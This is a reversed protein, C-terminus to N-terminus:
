FGRGLVPYDEIDALSDVPPRGGSHLHRYLTTVVHDKGGVGPDPDFHIILTQQDAPYGLQQTDELCGFVLFACDPRVVFHCVKLARLPRLLVKM